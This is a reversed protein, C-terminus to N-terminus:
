FSSFFVIKAQIDGLPFPLMVQILWLELLDVKGVQAERFVYPGLEKRKEVLKEAMENSIDIQLSPPIHSHIFCNIISMVKNEISLPDNHIHCFDKLIFFSNKAKGFGLGCARVAFM